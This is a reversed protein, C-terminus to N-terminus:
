ILNAECIEEIYEEIFLQVELKSVNFLKAIKEVHDNKTLDINAKKIENIRRPVETNKNENKIAKFCNNIYFDYMNNRVWMSSKKPTSNFLKALKETWGKQSFNINSNMILEKKNAYRITQQRKLKSNRQKLCYKEYFKPLNRAFYGYLSGVEVEFLDAIKYKWDPLSFDIDCNKLMDIRKLLLAADTAKRNRLVRLDFTEEIHKRNLERISPEKVENESSDEIINEEPVNEEIIKDNEIMIDEEISNEINNSLNNNSTNNSIDNSFNENSSFVEENNSFMEENSYTENLTEDSVNNISIDNSANINDEITEENEFDVKIFLIDSIFSRAKEISCNFLQAIEKDSNKNTFIIDSNTAISIYNAIHIISDEGFNKDAFCKDYFDPMNTKVFVYAEEPTNNMVRSLEIHWNRKNFDVKCNLVLKKNNNLITNENFCKENYFNPMNQKVWDHTEESSLNFEKSLEDEWNQKSFDINSNKIIDEKTLIKPKEIVEINEKSTEEINNATSNDSTNNSISNSIEENVVEKDPVKESINETNTEIVEKNSNKTINDKAITNKAINDKSNLFERSYFDPINKDLWNNVESIPISTIESICEIANRNLAFDDSLNDIIVVKAEEIDEDTSFETTLGFFEPMNHCVYLCADVETLITNDIKNLVKFLKKNWNKELFPVIDMNKIINAVENIRNNENYCQESYFEPMTKKVWNYTAKPEAFGLVKTLKNEWGAYNYTINANITKLIMKSLSGNVMYLNKYREILEKSLM